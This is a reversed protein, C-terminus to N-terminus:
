RVIPWLPLLKESLIFIDGNKKGDSQDNLICNMYSDSFNANDVM